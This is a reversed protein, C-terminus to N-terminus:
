PIVSQLGPHICQFSGLKFDFDPPQSLAELNFDELEGIPGALGSVALPISHAAVKELKLYM